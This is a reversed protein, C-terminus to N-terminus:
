DGLTRFYLAQEMALVDELHAEYLEPLATYTMTYIISVKCIMQRARYEVGGLTYTYECVKATKEGKGGNNLTIETESLLTFNELTATYQDKCATWYTDVTYTADEGPDYAYMSVNSRDTESVYVFNQGNTVDRLWSEPAFFRYAVENDSVLKMGEPVSVDDPIKRDDEGEFPFSEFTINELIGDVIDLYGDFSEAPASYTFLFFREEAADETRFEVRTLLQRFRVAEGLVTAVYTMDVARRGSLTSDFYKEQKYDKLKALEAKHSDVYQTLATAELTEDPDFSVETMSVVIKGGSLYASSVGSDTNVTWQTPVFLRFYEGGCTAYQYGDPVESTSACSVLGGLMMVAALLACLLRVLKNKVNM